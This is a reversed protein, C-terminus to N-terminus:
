GRDRLQAAVLKAVALTIDKEYIHFTGGIPGNMGNDPGGHGADVVVVRRRGTLRSTAARAGRSPAPAPARKVTTLVAPAAAPGAGYFPDDRAAPPRPAVRLAPTAPDRGALANPTFTRLEVHAADYLVGSGYRPLAESVLQMPVYLRGDDVFPAASLPVVEDGARAFPVQETLEFEVGPLRVVYRGDGSKSVRGGLAEAVADARVAPGANTEVVTVSTERDASRVTLIGPPPAAVQLLALLAAAIM